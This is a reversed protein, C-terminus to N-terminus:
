IRTQEAPLVARAAIIPVRTTGFRDSENRTATGAPWSIGTVAPITHSLSEPVARDPGARGMILSLYSPLHLPLPISRSCSRSRSPTSLSFLSLPPLSPPLSLAGQRAPHHVRVQGGAGPGPPRPSAPSTPSPCSPPCSPVRTPDPVLPAFRLARDRRLPAALSVTVQVSLVAAASASDRSKM